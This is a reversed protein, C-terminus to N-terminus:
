LMQEAQFSSLKTESSKRDNSQMQVVPFNILRRRDNNIGVLKFQQPESM